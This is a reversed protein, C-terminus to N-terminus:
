DDEDYNEGPLIKHNGMAHPFTKSIEYAIVKALQDISGSLIRIQTMDITGSCEGNAKAHMMGALNSLTTVAGNIGRGMTPTPAPSPDDPMAQIRHYADLTRQSIGVVKGEAWDILEKHNEDLLQRKTKMTHTHGGADNCPNHIPPPPTNQRPEDETPWGLGDLGSM